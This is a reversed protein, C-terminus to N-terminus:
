HDALQAGRDAWSCNGFIHKSISKTYVSRPSALQRVQGSLDSIRYVAPQRIDDRTQNGFVNGRSLQALQRAKRRHGTLSVSTGYFIVNTRRM